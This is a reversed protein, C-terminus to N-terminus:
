GWTLKFLNYDEKKDFILFLRDGESLRIDCDDRNITGHTAPYALTNSSFEKIVDYETICFQRSIMWRISTDTEYFWDGIPEKVEVRMFPYSYYMHFANLLWRNDMFHITIM